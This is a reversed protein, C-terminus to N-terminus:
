LFKIYKFSSDKDFYVMWDEEMKISGSIKGIKAYVIGDECVWICVPNLRKDHLKVLKRAIIPLPYCNRITRNRRIVEAYAIVKGSNDLIRYDIDDPALKQYSGGFVNVFTDIGKKELRIDELTEIM